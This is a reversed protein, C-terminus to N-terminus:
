LRMPMVVYLNNNESGEKDPRILVPSLPEGMLFEVVDEHLSSLIEILYKSNFKIEMPTKSYDVEIETNSEGIEPSKSSLTLSGNNVTLLVTRSKVTSMISVVKLASLMESRKVKFSKDNGTPVVRLYDPYELDMEKVFVTTNDAILYFYGSEYLMSVKEATDVIKSLEYAGKKPILIGKSSGLDDLSCVPRDVMGLRHGDTSVMRLWGKNTSNDVYVSNLHYKTEDTSACFSVKDMMEKILSSDVTVKPSKSPLQVKPFDSAPLTPIKSETKGGRIKLYNDELEIDLVNSQIEKCIDYLVKASATTRGKEIVEDEFSTQIGVEINTSLLSIKRNEATILVNSLIPLTSKREGTGQVKSLEKLFVERNVTFKM